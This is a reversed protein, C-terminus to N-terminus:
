LQRKWIWLNVSIRTFPVYVGTKLCIVCQAIVHSRVHYFSPICICFVSMKSNKLAETTVPDTNLIYSIWVGSYSFAQKNTVLNFRTFAVFLTFARVLKATRHRTDHKYPCSHRAPGTVLFAININVQCWLVCSACLEPYMNVIHVVSQWEHSLMNTAALLTDYWSSRFSFM